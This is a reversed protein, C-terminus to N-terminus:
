LGIDVGFFDAASDGLAAGRNSGLREINDLPGAPLVSLCSLTYRTTRIRAWPLALGLSGLIALTNVVKIKLLESFRMAAQFRHADASTHNWVYNFRAAQVQIRAISFFVFFVASQAYVVTSSQAVRAQSTAALIVGILFAALIPALIWILARFYIRYFAGARGTFEFTCDGYRLFDIALRKRQLAFYPYLIGASLVCGLPMCVYVLFAAGYKGRYHFRLGRHVTNRANFALARVILWPVVLAAALVTCLQVQWYVQGFFAYGLFFLLVVVNGALLSRPQATFDFAHGLLTTHGFLYRKNRVKGWAAYIGLTVITLFTNVIWIRFFERHTGTFELPVPQPSAPAQPVQADDPASAPSTEPALTASPATAPEAPAPALPTERDASISASSPPQIADNEGM